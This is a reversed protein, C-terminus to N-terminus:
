KSPHDEKEKPKLLALWNQLNEVPSTHADILLGQLYTIHGGSYLVDQHPFMCPISPNMIVM